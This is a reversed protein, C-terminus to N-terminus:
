RPSFGGGYYVKYYPAYFRSCVNDPKVKMYFVICTDKRQNFHSCNSCRRFSSPYANKIKPKNLSPSISKKEPESKVTSKKKPKSNKVTAKPQKEKSEQNREKRKNKLKEILPLYKEKFYTSLITHQIEIKPNECTYSIHYTGDEKFKINKHSFTRQIEFSFSGDHHSLSFFSLRRNKKDTILKKDIILHFQLTSYKGKKKTKFEHTTGLDRLDGTTINELVVYHILDNDSTKLGARTKVM